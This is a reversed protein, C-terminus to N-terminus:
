GLFSKPEETCDENKYKEAVPKAQDWPNARNAPVYIGMTVNM